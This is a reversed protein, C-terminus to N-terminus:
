EVFVNKIELSRNFQSNYFGFNHGPPTLQIIKFFILIRVQDVYLNFGSSKSSDTFASVRYSSVDSRRSYTVILTIVYKM